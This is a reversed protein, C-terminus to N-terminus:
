KNAAELLVNRHCPADLPCWCALDKGRLEHVPLGPLVYRKFLRVAHESDRVYTMVVGPGAAPNKMWGGAKFPNGWKSPRCVNVAGPPMRWGKTRKRQIGKPTM